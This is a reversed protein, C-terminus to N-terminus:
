RWETKIEIENKDIKLSRNEGSEWDTKKGDKLIFKYEIFKSAPLKLEFTWVPWDPCSFPGAAKEPNWGGLEGTNGCIYIQQGFKTKDNKVYWRISADEKKANLSLLFNKYVPNPHKKVFVKISRPSLSISVKNNEISITDGNLLDTLIESKLLSNQFLDFTFNKESESNNLAIISEENELVRAFALLDGSKYLEIFKGEALSKNNKRISILKKIYDYLLPEPDFIMETRGSNEDIGKLPCETGYYIVPTGRLTFILGLALKLKDINEGASSYFRPVDHNDIFIAQKSNEPYVADNNILNAVLSLNGSKAISEIIKYYLPFDFLESIGANYYNKLYFIDGHLVEGIIIFDPIKEEVAFDNIDRIFKKWFNIPVHKVADLRIGSCGSKKIWYKTMNLLYDYVEPNNQNFDPLGGMNGSEVEEQLNWNKIDGKDNFWGANSRKLEADWEVHNLVIDIILKIGKSKLADSLKKLDKEVGFHEEIKYFDKIWYGHFGYSGFFELDRNDNFPSLLLATIGLNELYNIKKIIGEIDGGHYANPNIKDIKFNNDPNGDYFRDIMIQYVIETKNNPQFASVASLSILISLVM